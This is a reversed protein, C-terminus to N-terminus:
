LKYESNNDQLMTLAASFGLSCTYVQQETKTGKGEEWNCGEHKNRCRYYYIM